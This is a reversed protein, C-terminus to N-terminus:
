NNGISLIFTTVQNVNDAPVFDKIKLYSRRLEITRDDNLKFPLSNESLILQIATLIYPVLLSYMSYEGTQLGYFMAIYFRSYYTTLIAEGTKHACFIRCLAGIAEARGAEYTNDGNLGMVPFDLSISAQRSDTFSSSRSETRAKDATEKHSPHLSVRALAADFLWAGFLHLISDCRPRASALPQRADFSVHGSLNPPLTSSKPTTVTAAMKSGKQLTGAIVSSIPRGPKRQGPPTSPGPIQRSIQSTYLEDDAKVSQAIGLFANVMISIGRMARFFIYPLKNLCEHQIPDVVGNGPMAHQRFKPTNSIIDPHCLDVPNNLVHLYRFWCQAITDYSMDDPILQSGGEEQVNGLQLIPYGPGYLFKLLRATLAHNVKHWQVVLTEHHRWNVCMNRFTKWLSPSPFCKYCALLWIEFLVSLVRECLHDGIDDKETPPSLLSDNAALLFKLLTEWTERTLITSKTAVEEIARLTRHCLLAQRKVLDLVSGPRPVFLNLLHHIIDQTYPNPNERVPGPVCAKPETCASLWDCYVSVCEKITDQETLPLSLGFCLVEMTWKVEKDSVLHSPESNSGALSLNLEECFTKKSQIAPITRQLDCSHLFTLVFDFCNHSNENYRSRSWTQSQIIQRLVYDWQSQLNYDENIMRIVVCQNWVSGVNVGEENFDYTCGGSDTVGVHLDSNNSYNQLFTGVTPKIIVSCPYEKANVLPTSIIYPPIRCPTCAVEVGCLPCVVPVRFCLINLGKECHQFCKIDHTDM